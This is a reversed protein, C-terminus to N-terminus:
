GAASKGNFWISLQNTAGGSTRVYRVRIARFGINGLNVIASGAGNVAPLAPTILSTIDIWNITTPRDKNWSGGCGDVALTGVPSGGTANWVLELCGYVIGWCDAPDSTINASMDGTAATATAGFATMSTGSGVIQRDPLYM